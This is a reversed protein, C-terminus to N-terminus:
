KKNPRIKFTSNEFAEMMVQGYTEDNYNIIVSHQFDKYLRSFFKQNLLIEDSEPKLIKVEFYHFPVGSVKTISTASTDITIGQNEYTFAVLEKVMKFNADYDLKAELPVNELISQFLNQDNKKFTILYKIEDSDIEIDTADQILKNGKEAMKKMKDTDMLKWGEPIDISWGIESVYYKNEKVTGLDHNKKEVERCSIFLAFLCLLSLFPTSKM